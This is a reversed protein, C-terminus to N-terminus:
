RNFISYFLSKRPGLKMQLRDQIYVAFPFHLIKKMKSHLSALSFFQLIEPLRPSWHDVMGLFGDLEYLDVCHCGAASVFYVLLLCITLTRVYSM